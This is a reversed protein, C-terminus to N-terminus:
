GNLATRGAQTIFTSNWQPEWVLSIDLLAKPFEEKLIEKVNETILDGMPCSKSSLTMTIHINEETYSIKYVLGMDIININLEPDIVKKLAHYIRIEAKDQETLHEM